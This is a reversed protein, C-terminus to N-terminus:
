GRQKGGRTYAYDSNKYYSNRYYYHGHKKKNDLIDPIVALVPIDYTEQLYDPDHIQKDTLERIIIVLCALVVGLVVALIVNKSMSPSDQHAPEVAYDVIRVSSGDVIASIKEPLVQGITNAILEAEGPDPSTVDVYFIETSNVAAASIMKSLQEYTYDLHAKEIVDELTTRTDLIVTYTDVLSQAASLDGQSINVKTSGLSIASNNVYMLTRAKYLPTVAYKTYGFALAAAALAVLIIIWLRHLLAKFLQLLDIEVYEEKKQM